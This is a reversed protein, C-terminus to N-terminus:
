WAWEEPPRADEWEFSGDAYATVKTKGEIWAGRNELVEVAHRRLGTIRDQREQDVARRANDLTIGGTRSLFEAAREWDEFRYPFEGERYVVAGNRGLPWTRTM